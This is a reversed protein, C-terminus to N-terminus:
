LWKTYVYATCEETWTCRISTQKELKWLACPKNKVQCLYGCRACLKRLTVLRTNVKVTFAMRELLKETISSPFCVNSYMIATAEELDTDLVNDNRLEIETTNIIQKSEKLEELKILAYTSALFRSYSLEVGVARKCNTTIAVQILL